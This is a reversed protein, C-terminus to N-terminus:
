KIEKVKILEKELVFQRWDEGLEKSGIVIPFKENIEDLIIYEPGDYLGLLTMVNETLTVTDGVKLNEM